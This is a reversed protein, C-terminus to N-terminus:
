LNWQSTGIEFRAETRNSNLSIEYTYLASLRALKRRYLNLSDFNLFSLQVGFM